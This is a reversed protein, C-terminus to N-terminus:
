LAITGKGTAMDIGRVAHASDGILDLYTQERQKRVAEMRGLMGTAEIRQVTAILEAIATDLVVVDAEAAEVLGMAAMKHTTELFHGLFKMRQVLLIQTYEPQKSMVQDVAQLEIPLRWLLVAWQDAVRQRDVDSGFGRGVAYAAGQLLHAGGCTYAFVGQRRKEVTRGKAMADRMFATEAHLKGVVASTLSDATMAHGSSSWALDDQAWMTIAQLAWPSDNWSDFSVEDGDIWAGCVTSAHLQGLNTVQGGVRVKHEPRLGGESLAKLTLGSHPEIRVEGRKRPFGLGYETREAYVEFLHDVAARGNTLELEPGLALIAHGVAWANDPDRGFDRVIGVLVKRTTLLAETPPKALPSKAQREPPAWTTPPVCPASDAPHPTAETAPSATPTPIPQAGGGCTLLGAALTVTGMLAALAM